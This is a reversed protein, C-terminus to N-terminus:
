AMGGLYLFFVWKALTLALWVTGVSVLAARLPLGPGNELALIFIGAWALDFVSVQTALLYVAGPVDSGLRLLGALSGPLEQPLGQLLAAPPLGALWHTQVISGALLAFHAWLAARFIRGIPPNRIWPLLALQVILSVLGARVVVGVPALLYTLREWRRAAEVGASGAGLLAPFLDDGIVIRNMYAVSAVQLGAMLVVLQWTLLRPATSADADPARLDDSGDPGATM